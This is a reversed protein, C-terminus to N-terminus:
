FKTIKWGNKPNCAKSYSIGLELLHRKIGGEFFYENGEPDIVHWSKANPNNAGLKGQSLKERVEPRKAPNEAGLLKGKSNISMKLKSEETHNKNYMSNNSGSVQPRPGRMKLKSEDSHKKNYFPNKEGTMKISMEKSFITKVLSYNKSFSRINENSVDFNNMCQIAYSLKCKYKIYESMKYLLLHAIYHERPTLRILNSKNNTGGACKPVIHHTEFYGENIATNQRKLILNNYIKSYNL